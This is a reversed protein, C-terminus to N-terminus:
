WKVVEERLLSFVMVVASTENPFCSAVRTWRKVKKFTGYFIISSFVYM